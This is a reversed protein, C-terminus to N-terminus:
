LLLNLILGAGANYTIECDQNATYSALGGLLGAGEHSKVYASSSTATEGCNGSPGSM